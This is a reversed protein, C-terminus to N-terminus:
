RRASAKMNRVNHITIFARFATMGWLGIAAARPNKRGVTLHWASFGGADIMAGLTVVSSPSRDFPRLLPNSERVHYHKLAHYTSAWDAAAAVSAAITPARLRGSADQAAAVGPWACLLSASIVLGRISRDIHWM